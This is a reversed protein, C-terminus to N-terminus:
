CPGRRRCPEKERRGNSWVRSGGHVNCLPSATSDSFLNWQFITQSSIRCCWKGASKILQHWIYKSVADRHWNKIKLIYKFPVRLSASQALSLGTEFTTSSGHRVWNILNFKVNARCYRSTQFWTSTSSHLLGWRAVCCHSLKTEFMMSSGHWVWNMNIKFVNSYM